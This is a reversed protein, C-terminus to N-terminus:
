ILVKSVMVRIVRNPRILPGQKPGSSPRGNEKGGAEGKASEIINIPIAGTITTKRYTVNRVKLFLFISFM